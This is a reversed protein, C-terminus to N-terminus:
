KWTTKAFSEERRIGADFYANVILKIQGEGAMTYPDVTLDLAGWQGISIIPGTLSSQETNM